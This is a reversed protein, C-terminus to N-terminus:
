EHSAEKALDANKIGFAKRRVQLIKDMGAGDKSLKPQADQLQRKAKTDVLKKKAAVKQQLQETLGLDSIQETQAVIEADSTEALRAIDDVSIDVQLDEPSAADPLAVDTTVFDAGETMDRIATVTQENDPLLTMEQVPTTNAPSLGLKNRTTDVKNQLNGVAAQATDKLGSVTDKAEALKDKADTVKGKVENIKDKAEQMRQEAEKIKARAQNVKEMEREYEAKIEDAKAKAEDALKMLAEKKEKAKAALEKLEEYKEQAKAARDKLKQVKESQKVAQMFDGIKGIKGTIYNRAIQSYEEQVGGIKIVVGNAIEVANVVWDTPAYCPKGVMTLLITMIVGFTRRSIM